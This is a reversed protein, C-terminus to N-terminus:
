KKVFTYSSYGLPTLASTLTLTDNSINMEFGNYKTIVQGNTGVQILTSLAFLGTTQFNNLQLVQKKLDSAETTISYSGQSILQNNLRSVYINNSYLQLLVTSDNSPASAGIGYGYTWNKQLLQWNGTYPKSTNSKHCASLTLLLLIASYSLAKM